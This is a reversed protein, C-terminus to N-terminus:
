QPRFPELQAVFEEADEGSASVTVPKWLSLTLIGLISKGDVVHDNSKVKVDCSYKSALNVFDCVQTLKELKVQREITM